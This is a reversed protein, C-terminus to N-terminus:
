KKKKMNFLKPYFVVDNRMRRCFLAVDLDDKMAELVFFASIQYDDNDHYQTTLRLVEIEDDTHSEKTLIVDIESDTCDIWERHTTSRKRRKKPPPEVIPSKKVEKSEPVTTPVAFNQKELYIQVCNKYNTTQCLEAVTRQYEPHIQNKIMMMVPDFILCFETEMLRFANALTNQEYVTKRIYRYRQINIASLSLVIQEICIDNVWRGSFQKAYSLLGDYCINSLGMNIIACMILFCIYISYYTSMIGIKHFALSLEYVVNERVSEFAKTECLVSLLLLGLLQEEYSRYIVPNMTMMFTNRFWKYFIFFSEPERCIRLHNLNEMLFFDNRLLICFDFNYVIRTWLIKWHYTNSNVYGMGGCPELAPKINKVYHVIMKRVEDDQRLPTEMIFDLQSSAFKIKLTEGIQYLDQAHHSKIFEQGFCKNLINNKMWEANAKFIGLVDNKIEDLLAYFYCLVVLCKSGEETSLPIKCMVQVFCKLYNYLGFKRLENVVDNFINTEMFSFKRIISFDGDLISRIISFVKDDKNIELKKQTHITILRLKTEM